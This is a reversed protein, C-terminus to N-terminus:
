NNKQPHEKNESFNNLRKELDIIYLTLEEIKRLLIADMEGLNIGNEKVEKESPVGPLHKKEDIYQEVESLTKIQYDEAFVFDPWNAYLKVVVEEAIMNGNVAFRYGKTDETGIGVNGDGMITMLTTPTGNGNKFNFSSTTQNSNIFFNFSGNPDSDLSIGRRTPIQNMGLIELGSMGNGTNGGGSNNYNALSVDGNVTLMKYTDNTGIGVNGTLRYIDVGNITWDGDDLLLTQWSALGNADSVLVKNAGQSGDRLKFTGSVDLKATPTTGIGVMGTTASTMTVNGGKAPNTNIAVERGCYWNILLKSDSGDTYQGRMDIIGNAGDYGINLVNINGTPSFDSKGHIQIMADFQNVIPVTITPLTCFTGLNIPPGGFGIIEPTNATPALYSIRKFNGFIFDGIVKLDGNFKGLGDFESPGKVILEQDVTLKKKITASDAVILESDVM